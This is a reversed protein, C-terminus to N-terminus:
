TRLRKSLRLLRRQTAPTSPRSTPPAPALQTGRSPSWPGSASPRWPPRRQTAPTSPKSGPPAPALQTARTRSCCASTTRRRPAAEPHGSDIAQRWATTAVGAEGRTYAAFAVKMAENVSVRALLHEWIALQTLKRGDRREVFDVVPDAVRFTGALSDPDAVLLAATRGVPETAWVLGRDVDGERFPTLPRLQRLYLPLLAALDAKAVPRNLGARRCDVAALVLGAGEPVSTQGVELRDVLEHAAALHEALGGSLQENPYLEGIAVQEAPDDFTVPLTIAGPDFRNLVERVARGLEGATAALRGYEEL